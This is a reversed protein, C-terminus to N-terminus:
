DARSAGTPEKAGLRSSGLGEKVCGRGEGGGGGKEKKAPERLEGGRRERGTGKM